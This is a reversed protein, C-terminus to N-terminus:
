GLLSSGTDFSEEEWRWRRSIYFGPGDAWTLDPSPEYRQFRSIIKPPLAVVAFKRRAQRNRAKLAEFM